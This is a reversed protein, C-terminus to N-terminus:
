CCNWAARPISCPFRGACQQAVDRPLENSSYPAGVLWDSILGAVAESRELPSARMIHWSFSPFLSLPRLIIFTFSFSRFLFLVPLSKTLTNWCAFKFFLDDSAGGWGWGWSEM